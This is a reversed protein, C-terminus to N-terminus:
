SLGAREAWSVANGTNPIGAPRHGPHQQAASPQLLRHHPAPLQHQQLCPCPGTPSPLNPARIWGAAPPVWGQPRLPDARQALQWAPSASHAPLPKQPLLAAQAGPHNARSFFLPPGLIPSALALPCFDLVLSFPAHTVPCVPPRSPQASLCSLLQAPTCTPLCM